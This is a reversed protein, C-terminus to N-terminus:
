PYQLDELWWNLFLWLYHCHRPSTQGHQNTRRGPLLAQVQSNWLAFYSHPFTNQTIGEQKALLLLSFPLLLDFYLGGGIDPHLIGHREECVWGAKHCVAVRLLLVDLYFIVFDVDINLNILSFRVRFLQIHTIKYHPDLEFIFMYNIKFRRFITVDTAVSALVFVLMFTFRFAPFSAEIDLSWDNEPWTPVIMMFITILILMAIAGAFFSIM